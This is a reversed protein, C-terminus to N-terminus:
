FLDFRTNQLLSKFIVEATSSTLSSSCSSQSSISDQIGYCHSPSLKPQLHRLLLPVLPNPDNSIVQYKYHMAKHLNTYLSSTAFFVYCIKSTTFVFLGM